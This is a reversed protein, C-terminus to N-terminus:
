GSERSRRSYDLNFITKDANYFFRKGVHGPVAIGSQYLNGHPFVRCQILKTDFVIAGQCFAVQFCQEWVSADTKGIHVVPEFDQVSVQLDCDM